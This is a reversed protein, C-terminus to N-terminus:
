GPMASASGLRRAPVGAVVTRDGVNDVVVANAGIRAGQGVTVPGLVKAGTGVHVGDGITPGQFVGAKLGVTTWPFLLVRQGLDTFGDVVVQGHPLYMGAQVVVPDGICVQSTAMSLHHLVRPLVPVGRRLMAVRTRYFVQAAFADTAWTLRVAEAVLETRSLQGRGRSEGRYELTTQIDAVLAQRLPPSLTHRERIQRRRDRAARQVARLSTVHGKIRAQIEGSRVGMGKSYPHRNM